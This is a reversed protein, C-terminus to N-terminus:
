KYIMYKKIFIDFFDNLDNFINSKNDILINKKYDHDYIIKIHINYGDSDNITYWYNYHFIYAIKTNNKERFILITDTETKYNNEYTSSRIYVDYNNVHISKKGSDEFIINPDFYYSYEIDDNEDNEDDKFYGHENYAHSLMNVMDNIKMDRSKNLYIKNHINEINNNIIHEIDEVKEIHEIDETKEIDEIDETKEIISINSINNKKAIKKITNIIYYGEPVEANGNLIERRHKVGMFKYNRNNFYFIQNNEIDYNKIKRIMKKLEYGEPVEMNGNLIERKHVTGFFKYSKNGIIVKNNQLM